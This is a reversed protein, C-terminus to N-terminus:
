QMVAYTFLVGYRRCWIIATTYGAIDANIEYNQNGSTGKLPGLDIYDGLSKSDGTPQANKSLYVYLDPGSVVNFNELRLINRGDIQILKAVGSGKHIFDVEGFSGQRLVAPTPMTSAGVTASPMPLEENVETRVFYTYLGTFYIVGALILLVIAGISYKKM